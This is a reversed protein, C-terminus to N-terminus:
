KRFTPSLYNTTTEEPKWSGIKVDEIWQIMEKKNKFMKGEFNEYIVLREYYSDINCKNDLLYKLEVYWALQEEYTMFDKNFLYKLIWFFTGERQQRISHIREHILHGNKGLESYNNWDELSKVYMTAGITLAGVDDPLFPLEVIEELPKWKDPLLQSNCGILLIILFIFNRM